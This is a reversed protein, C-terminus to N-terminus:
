IHDTMSVYELSVFKATKYRSCCRPMGWPKRRTTPRRRCKFTLIDTRHNEILAKAPRVEVSDWGVLIVSTWVGKETKTM